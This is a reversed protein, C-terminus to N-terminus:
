SLETESPSRGAEEFLITRHQTAQGAAVTDTGGSVRLDASQRKVPDDEADGKRREHATGGM